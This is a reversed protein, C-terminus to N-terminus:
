STPELCADLDLLQGLADGFRQVHSTGTLNWYYFSVFVVLKCGTHITPM